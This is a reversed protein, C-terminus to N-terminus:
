NPGGNETARGKSFGRRKKGAAVVRSVRILSLESPNGVAGSRIPGVLRTAKTKVGLPVAM